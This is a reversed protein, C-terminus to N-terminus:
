RPQASAQPRPSSPSRHVPTMTRAKGAHSVITLSDIRHQSSAVLVLLITAIACLLLASTGRRPRHIERRGTAVACWYTAGVVLLAVAVLTVVGFALSGAAHLAKAYGAHVDIFTPVVTM